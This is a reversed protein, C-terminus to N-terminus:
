TTPPAGPRRRRARGGAARGRRGPGGPEPTRERRVEVVVAPPDLLGAGCRHIVPAGGGLAMISERHIAVEEPASTGKLALVRGGVRTLPLCWVALQDLRALARATVVDAPPLRDVVEGARGREVTVAQSLGLQGVVETLFATRRAMPEVLTVTLDPRAVALVLGPLGAGSGVDTVSSGAPILEAVAACNLLHRQWIRPAERPGVLGRETGDTVLLHAYREALALRDGFLAAAAHRDGPPVPPVAPRRREPEPVM